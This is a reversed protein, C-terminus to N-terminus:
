HRDFRPDKIKRELNDSDKFYDFREHVAEIKDIDAERERKIQDFTEQYISAVAADEDMVLKM